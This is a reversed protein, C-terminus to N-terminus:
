LFLNAAGNVFLAKECLIYRSANWPVSEMGLSFVGYFPITMGHGIGSVAGKAAAGTVRYIYVGHSDEVATPVFVAKLVNGNIKGVDSILEELAAATDAGFVCLNKAGIDGNVGDGKVAAKILDANGHIYLDDGLDAGAKASRLLDFANGNRFLFDDKVAAFSIDVNELALWVGIEAGAAAGLEGFGVKGGSDKLNSVGDYEIGLDHVGAIAATCRANGDLIKGVRNAREEAASKARIQRSLEQGDRETEERDNANFAGGLIKDVSRFVGDGFFFAHGRRGIVGALHETM